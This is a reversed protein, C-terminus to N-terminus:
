QAFYKTLITTYMASPRPTPSLFSTMEGPANLWYDIEGIRLIVRGLQMQSRLRSISQGKEDLQGHQPLAPVVTDDIQIILQKNVLDPVAKIKNTSQWGGPDSFLRFAVVQLRKSRL